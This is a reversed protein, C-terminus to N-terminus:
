MRIFISKEAKAIEKIKELFLELIKLKQNKIKLKEIVPGRPLYLYSRGLPLNHKVVLAGCILEHEKTNWNTHRRTGVMENEDIEVGIIWTKRGLSRQFEGWEWSQLFQSGNQTVFQNWLNKDKIEIVQMFNNRSLSHNLDNEMKCMCIKQTIETRKGICYIRIYITNFYIEDRVIHDYFSKQWQFHFKNQIKNIKRSSFTKFGRIIGFLGHTPVTKFGNGVKIFNSNNPLPQWGNGVINTELIGIISCIIQYKQYKDLEVSNYPKTNGAL